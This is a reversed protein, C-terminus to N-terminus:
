ASPKLSVCSGSSRTKARSRRETPPRGATPRNTTTTSAPMARARAAGGGSRCSRPLRGGREDVQAPQLPRTRLGPGRATARALCRTVASRLEYFEQTGHTAEGLLVFRLREDIAALLDDCDRVHSRLDAM